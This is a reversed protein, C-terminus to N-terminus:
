KPYSGNVDGACIVRIDQLVSANNVTVEPSDYLWDPIDFHKIFNLFRRNIMLADLPNIYTDNNVNATIKRLANDGGFSTIMGVYYKNVTLADVPNVGGRRMSTKGFVLNFKGNPVNYFKYAGSNDTIVSDVKQNQNDYLYIVTNAVPTKVINNYTVNGTIYYCGNVVLTAIIASSTRCINSVSCSYTGSEAFTLNQINFTSNTAGVISNGNKSWQYNLNSGSAFVKFNVDSGLCETLNNITDEIFPPINMLLSSFVTTDNCINSVHCFYKGTDIQTIVSVIYSSRTANAINNGQRIWQYSTQLGPYSTQLNVKFIVSDRSCKIKSPTFSSIILSPYIIVNISAPNGECGNIGAVVSYTGADSYHTNPISYQTNTASPIPIGNKSWQYLTTNPTPSASLNLTNGTCLPSNSSIVPTILSPIVHITIITDLIRSCGTNPNTAKIQFSATAALSGSDFSLSDGNGTQSNGYQNSNQLLQYSIGQQPHILMIQANNDPCISDKKLKVSMLNCSENYLVLIEADTLARNYIRVDDICGSYYEMNQYNGAAPIGGIGLPYTTTTIIDNVANSIELKGNKFIKMTKGDYTCVYFTWVGASINTNSVLQRYSNGFFEFWFKSGGNLKKFTYGLRKTVDHKCIIMRNYASSVDNPDVWACISLTRNMNLSPNDPVKIIASTGNFCYASNPNGCRDNSLAAGYVTGNNRNGSEDHANGNFPYYAVLGSDLSKLSPLQGIDSPLPNVTVYATGPNSTCGDLTVTVNYQGTATITANSVSPNQLNSTFGNPGSWQYSAQLGIDSAQLQLTSGDCLPSNSGAKPAPLHNTCVTDYTIIVYFAAGSPGGGANIDSLIFDNTGAHFYTKNATTFTADGNETIRKPDSGRASPSLPYSNIFVRGYDDTNASGYLSINTFNAPLTFSAKFYGSQGNGPPINIVMTKPPAGPPVNTGTGQADVIVPSFTLNNIVAITDLEAIIASSPYWGGYSAGLTSSDSKLTIVFSCEASNSIAFGILILLAYNIIRM